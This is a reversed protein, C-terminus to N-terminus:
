GIIIWSVLFMIGTVAWVGSQVRASKRNDMNKTIFVLAVGVVVLIILPLFWLEM